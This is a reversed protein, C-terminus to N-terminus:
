IMRTAVCLEAMEEVTLQGVLEDLSAAGARVDDMTIKKGDVGPLVPNEKQYETGRCVIDAAHIM